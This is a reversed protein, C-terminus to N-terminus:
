IKNCQWLSSNDCKKAVELQVNYINNERLMLDVTAYALEPFNNEDSLHGLFVKELGSHYINVILEGCQENSLHGYDSSVRKKLEYPYKGVELMKKDHNAELLLAKTGSLAEIMNYDFSGLDTVLAVKDNQDQMTYVVSNSADHNSSIPLIRIDGVDFEEEGSISKFLNNNINGLSKSKKIEYITEKTAYIPVNIERSVVGLGKIHDIHEHTILIGDIDSLDLGFINLGEKIRKKSIGCDVLINTTDSGAYICNGSSSSAISGIKM